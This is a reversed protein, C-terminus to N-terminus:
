KKFGIKNFIRRICYSRIISIITFYLGIMLNDRISVNINFLPFIVIQSCLAVMYGIIVNICSEILSNFRSQM